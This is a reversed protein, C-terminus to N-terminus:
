SRDAFATVIISMKAGAVFAGNDEDSAQAFEAPGIITSEIDAHFRPSGRIIDITSRVLGNRLTAAESRKSLDFAVIELSFTITNYYDQGARVEPVQTDLIVDCTAMNGFNDDIEDMEYAVLEYGAVGAEILDALAQGVADFDTWSM